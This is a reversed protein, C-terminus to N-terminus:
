YILQYIKQTNLVKKVYVSTENFPIQKLTIGDDSYKKDSLWKLVNGRGANYCALANTEVKFENLFLSFIYCGYKINIEANYLSNENLDTDKAKQAAWKYTQPTIQMLGIAGAHSVSDKKFNSECKIIAYVLNKDLGYEIAYKEVYDSYKKPYLYVLSSYILLVIILLIILTSLIKIIIQKM